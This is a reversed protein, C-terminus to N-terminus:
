REFLAEVNRLTLEEFNGIVLDAGEFEDASHTTAVAIVKMGANLGAKVGSISDEFVVCDHPETNLQEAAKLYIEPNPKSKTISGSHLFADFYQRLDLTDMIFDLNEVPASTGVATKVGAEKLEKLFDVLGLVPKADKKYLGRFLSEKEHAWKKGKEPTYDDKFIYPFIESNTRGYVHDRLEDDTLDVNHEDLFLKFAKKHYPNTHVLVGDMDFLCAISTSKIPM